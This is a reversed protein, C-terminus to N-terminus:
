PAPDFIVDLGGMGAISGQLRDGAVVPGVGAPTGTFILDGAALAYLRSLDAILDAVSWVQDSLDGTQVVQGNKRLEIAGQDPRTNQNVPQLVSCLASQEADKATDWPRATDKAAAQLDRRTMDLGVGYAFVHGLADASAIQRGGSGLAVVLEVEHHYDATAPAMAVRGKAQALHHASKTFYFPAQRDVVNGMEAAHAAYNRGVCFIRRVPYLEDQGVIPLSPQPPPDFAFRM